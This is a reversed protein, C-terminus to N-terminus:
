QDDEKLLDIEYKALAVIRMDARPDRIYNVLVKAREREQERAMRAGALYAHAEPVADYRGADVDPELIFPRQYSKVWERFALVDPDVVPEPPKWGERTVEIVFHDLPKYEGIVATATNAKRYRVWAEAMIQENPATM